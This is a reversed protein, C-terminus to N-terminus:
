STAFPTLPAKYVWGMKRSMNKRLSIHRADGEKMGPFFRVIWGNDEEDVNGMIYFVLAMEIANFLEMLAVNERGPVKPANRNAEALTVLLDPAVVKLWKEAAEDRLEHSVQQGAWTQIEIKM